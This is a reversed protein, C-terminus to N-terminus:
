RSWLPRELRGLFLQQVDVQEQQALYFVLRSDASILLSGRTVNGGAIMDGSVRRARGGALRTAHAEFTGPQLLDSEFAVWRGNPSLQFARVGAPSTGSAGVDSLWVPAGSGDAQAGFLEFRGDQEQDAVYVLRNGDPSFAFGHGDLFAVEGGPVLPGSVCLPTGGGLAVVYLEQVEDTDLDARLAVRTGDPAIAFDSVSAHAPLTFLPAAASSGDSAVRFLGRREVIDADARYIVQLGDPTLEFTPELEHPVELTSRRGGVDGGAVLPGNLRLPASSGDLPVSYLEYQEDTDQDARYIVRSEDPTVLYRDVCRDPDAPPTLLVAPQSADLPASWLEPWLGTGGSRAGFVVRAGGPSVAPRHGDDGLPVPPTLGDVPSVFLDSGTQMVVRQGDPALAFDFVDSLEPSLAVPGGPGATPVSFLRSRGLLESQATYLVRSGDPTPRSELVHYSTDLRRQTRAGGFGIVHLEFRGEFSGEVLQVVRRGGPLEHVESVDGLPVTGSGQNTLEIPTEQPSTAFVRQGARFVIRGGPASVFDSEISTTVLPSAGLDLLTGASGLARGFLQLTGDVDRDLRFLVFNGAAGFRFDREVDATPPLPGCLPVPATSGDLRASYLEFQEDLAGDARYVLRTGAPALRFDTVDGAGPLLLANLKTAPGGAAPVSYLEFRDDFEQDARYVVFNGAPDVALDGQVDGGAVLPGNQVTPAASGDLPARFLEVREDVLADAVFFVASGDPALVFGPRVDGNAVLAGSLLTPAASGDLPQAYLEFREDVASDTLFVIHKGDPTFRLDALNRFSNPSTGGMAVPTRIGDIPVAFFLSLTTSQTTRYVVYGSDPGIELLELRVDGDGPESLQLSRSGGEVPLSWLQGAQTVWAVRRGDPTLRFELAPNATPSTADLVIPPESDDSRASYLTISDFGFGGNAQVTFLFRSGDSTSALNDEAPLTALRWSPGGFTSTGYLQGNLRQLLARRGDPRVVFRAADPAANGPVLLAESGLQVGQALATSSLLLVLGAGLRCRMPGLALSPSRV